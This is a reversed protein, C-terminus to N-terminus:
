QDGRVPTISEIEYMGDPGQQMIFNVSMGRIGPSNLAIKRRMSACRLSIRCGRECGITRAHEGRPDPVGAKAKMWACVIEDDHGAHAEGAIGNKL